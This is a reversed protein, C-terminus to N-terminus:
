VLKQIHRNVLEHSPVSSLVKLDKATIAFYARELAIGADDWVNSARSGM